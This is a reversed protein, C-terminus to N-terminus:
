YQLVTRYVFSISWDGALILTSSIIFLRVPPLIIGNTSDLCAIAEMVGVGDQLYSQLNTISTTKGKILGHMDTVSFRVYDVREKFAEQLIRKAERADM